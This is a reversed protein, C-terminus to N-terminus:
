QASLTIPQEFYLTMEKRAELIIEGNKDAQGIINGSLDETKFTASIPIKNNYPTRITTFRVEMMAQKSQQTTNLNVITGSIVSGKPAIFSNEHRFDETLITEVNQGTTNNRSNIEQSLVVNVTAGAPVFIVNKRLKTKTCNSCAFVTAQLAIFIAIFITFVSKNVM